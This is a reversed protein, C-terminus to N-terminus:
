RMELEPFGTGAATHKALSKSSVNPSMRIYSAVQQMGHTSLSSIDHYQRKRMLGSNRSSDSGSGGFSDIVIDPQRYRQSKDGAMFMIMAASSSPGPSGKKVVPMKLDSLLVPQEAVLWPNRLIDGSTDISSNINTSAYDSQDITGSLHRDIHRHKWKRPVLQQQQQDSMRPEDKIPTLNSKTDFVDLRRQMLLTGYGVVNVVLATFSTELKRIDTYCIDCGFSCFLL